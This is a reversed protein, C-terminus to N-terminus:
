RRAPPFGGARGSPPAAPARRSQAIARHIAVIGATLVHWECAAFGAERIRGALIDPRPFGAITEALYRYAGGRGSVGDGLRPLLRRLYFGYLRSVVPGEPRSFELVVLQGGPRLVRHMEALGAGMDDLNRIGFAVAVADFAGDAFPLRLADAEVLVLRAPDPARRLKRRAVALMPHCFDACVITRAATRRALELTLDGTGGCLDLVHALPEGTLLDAARRRWRRDLNASLLHNLLDYRRALEGFMRRVRRPDRAPATEEM